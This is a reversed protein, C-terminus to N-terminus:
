FTATRFDSCGEPLPLAPQSPRPPAPGEDWCLELFALLGPVALFRCPPNITLSIQKNNKARGSLVDALEQGFCSRYWSRAWPRLQPQAASAMAPASPCIWGWPCACAAARLAPARLAPARLAEGFAHLCLLTCRMVANLVSM